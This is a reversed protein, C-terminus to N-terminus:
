EEKRQSFAEHKTSHNLLDPMQGDQLEILNKQGQIRGDHKTREERLIERGLKKKKQVDKSTFDIV